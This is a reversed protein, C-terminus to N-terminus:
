KNEKSNWNNHVELTLHPLNHNLIIRFDLTCIGKDNFYDPNLRNLRNVYIFYINKILHQNIDEIYIQEQITLDYLILNIIANHDEKNLFM